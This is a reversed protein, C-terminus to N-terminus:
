PGDVDRVEPAQAVEVAHHLERGVPSIARDHAGHLDVAIRLYRWAVVGASRHPSERYDSNAHGDRNALQLWILRTAKEVDM